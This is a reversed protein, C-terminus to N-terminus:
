PAAGIDRLLITATRADAPYFAEIALESLTVDIATGFTSITSLFNLEGEPTRLRLPLVIEAGPSDAPPRDAEVGPHAVLERHLRALEEDGTIVARRRLRGLLHAGYEPLNAIAPAL